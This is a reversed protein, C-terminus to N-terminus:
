ATEEVRELEEMPVLEEIRDDSGKVGDDIEVDLEGMVAALAAMQRSFTETPMNGPRPAADEAAPPAEPAACAREAEAEDDTRCLPCTPASSAVMLRKYCAEHVPHGCAYATLAQAQLWDGCVPCDSSARVLAGLTEDLEPAAAVEHRPWLRQEDRVLAILALPSRESCQHRLHEIRQLALLPGSNAATRRVLYLTRSHRADHVLQAWAQALQTCHTLGDFRESADCVTYNVDRYASRLREALQPLDAASTVDHASPFERVIKWLDDLYYSGNRRKAEFEEPGCERGEVTPPLAPASADRVCRAKAAPVASM